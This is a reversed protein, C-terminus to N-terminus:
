LKSRLIALVDRWRVALVMLWACVGGIAILLPWVVGGRGTIWEYAAAGAFFLCFVCIPGLGFVILAFKARKTM